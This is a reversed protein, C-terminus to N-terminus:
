GKLYYAFAEHLLEDPVQVDIVPAGIKRLLVFNIKGGENKKDYKLLQIIEQQEVNEFEQKGFISLISEKIEELQQLPFGQLKNSLYGALVAGIAVAEGHLLKKRSQNQLCFSEIAHGLTHGFNLSKRWGEENPDQAVIDRKIKVSSRILGDLDALSHNKLNRLKQWYKEDAILGHKLMEALGSRMEEAPLSGLFSSDILVLEPLRIVGVQNKLSELNVGNKGGIAADVMALLTTPVHLTRIGRKFTAAVFGGLDSVVGGGLNILLSKRDGGLESLAKWIGECTELTKAHEGAEMEIVEVPADTELRSLFQPLCHRHTNNDVLIFIRSIQKEALASAMVEYGTEGFLYKTSELTKQM